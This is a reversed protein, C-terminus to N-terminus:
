FYIKGSDELSILEEPYSNFYTQELLYSINFRVVYSKILLMPTNLTLKGDRYKGLSDLILDREKETIDKSFYRLVHTLVSINNSCRPLREFTLKLNKEYEDLIKEIPKCEDNSIIKELVKSYKQSSAMLLLKNKNHFKILESLDNAEKVKRFNASMFIKTLFHDRIRYNHLRGEDEIAAYPFMEVAKGGFFGVGRFTGTAKLFGKYIKVNKYGCSPSSSKFIFGDINKLNNLYSSTFDIMEKTFEKGTKPQYLKFANDECVVRIPSRPVGLGISMEPCESIINVYPKLNEIFSNNVMQGNYRCSDFGLCKSFFMNPREFNSM